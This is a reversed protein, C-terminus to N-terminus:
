LIWFGVVKMRVVTSHIFKEREPVKRRGSTVRLSVVDKKKKQQHQTEKLRPHIPQIGNAM